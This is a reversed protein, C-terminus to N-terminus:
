LVQAQRIIQGKENTMNRVRFTNFQNRYPLRSKECLCIASQDPPLNKTSYSKGAAPPGIILIPNAM